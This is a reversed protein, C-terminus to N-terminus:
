IRCVDERISRILEMLKEDLEQYIEDRHSVIMRPLKHKMVLIIELGSAMRQDEDPKRAAPWNMKMRVKMIRMLDYVQDQMQVLIEGATANPFQYKETLLNTPPDWGNHDEEDESRSDVRDQRMEGVASEEDGISSSEDTELGPPTDDEDEDEVGVEIGENIGNEDRAPVTVIPIDLSNILPTIDVPDIEEDEESSGDYAPNRIM